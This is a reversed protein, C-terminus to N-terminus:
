FTELIYALLDAIDQDALTDFAPMADGEGELITSVIEADGEGVVDGMAPGSGGEGNVGHCVACEDAYVAEGSAADGELELIADVRESGGEDGGCAMLGVLALTWVARM